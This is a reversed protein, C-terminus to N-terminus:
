DEWCRIWWFRVLSKKGTLKYFSSIMMYTRETPTQWKSVQFPAPPPFHHPSCLPFAQTHKRREILKPFTDGKFYVAM